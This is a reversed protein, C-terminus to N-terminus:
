VQKSYEMGAINRKNALICCKEYKRLCATTTTTHNKEVEGYINNLM